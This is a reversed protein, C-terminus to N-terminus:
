LESHSSVHRLPTLTPAVPEMIVDRGAGPLRSPGSRAPSNRPLIRPSSTAWSARCRSARGRAAGSRAVLSRGRLRAARVGRAPEARQRDQTKSRRAGPWCGQGPEDGGRPVRGSLSRAPASYRARVPLQHLLRRRRPRGAHGPRPARPLGPVYVTEAPAGAPKDFPERRLRVAAHNGHRCNEMLGGTGHIRVFNQHGRLGGHLSKVVPTM